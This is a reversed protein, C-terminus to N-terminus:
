IFLNFYLIFINLVYLKASLSGKKLGELAPKAVKLLKRFKELKKEVEKLETELKQTKEKQLKSSLNDM